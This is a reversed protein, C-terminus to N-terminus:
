LDRKKQILDIWYNLFLAPHKQDAVNTFSRMIDTLKNQDIAHLDNWEPLVLLPLGIQAFSNTNPSDKVVPIIGLYMAEWTRHCDIGAGRPSAIFQYTSIHKIYDTRDSIMEVIEAESYNKLVEFASVREPHTHKIDFAVFIKNKKEAVSNKSTDSFYTLLGNRRYSLNELGIPLPTMKPHTVDINVGFWHIIKEDIYQTYTEDITTDDNHSIIIYPHNISPHIKVFFEKLFRNRVFITDKPAVTSPTVTSFEDFAHNAISRFTDGSLFPASSPHEFKFKQNLWRRVSTKLNFLNM